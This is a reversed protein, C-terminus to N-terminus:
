VNQEFRAMFVQQKMSSFVKDVTSLVPEAWPLYDLPSYDLHPRGGYILMFQIAYRM